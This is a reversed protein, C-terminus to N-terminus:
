RQSSYLEELRKIRNKILKYELYEPEIPLLDRRYLVKRHNENQFNNQYTELIGRLQTKRHKLLRIESKLQRMGDTRSSTSTPPNDENRRSSSTSQGKLTKYLLYLPKLPEKDAKSPVRGFMNLFDYAFKRLEEKIQLRLVEKQQNADSGVTLSVDTAGSGVSPASNNEALLASPVIITGDESLKLDFGELITQLRDKGFAEVYKRDQESASNLLLQYRERIKNRAEALRSQNANTSDTSNNDSSRSDNLQAKVLQFLYFSLQSNLYSTVIRLAENYTDSPEQM